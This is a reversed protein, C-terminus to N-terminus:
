PEERWLLFVEEWLLVVAVRMVMKRAMVVGLVAMLQAVVEAVLDGMLRAVVEVALAM